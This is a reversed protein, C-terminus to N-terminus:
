INTYNNHERFMKLNICGQYVGVPGQRNNIM